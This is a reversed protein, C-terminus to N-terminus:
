NGWIIRKFFVGDSQLFNLLERFTTFWIQFGIVKQLFKVFSDDLYLVLLLFDLLFCGTTMPKMGGLFLMKMVIEWFRFLWIPFQQLYM